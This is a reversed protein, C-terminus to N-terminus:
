QHVAAGIGGGPYWHNQPREGFYLFRRGTQEAWKPLRDTVHSNDSLVLSGPGLHDTVAEFESTEHEPSHDSDHLFVDVSTRLASLSALSDGTVVETVEEFPGDILYGAEPNVDMTTLRGTGNALLAAALVCSGLGKDTGTEVVHAPRLARVIAYWGVRRGYRVETDAFGRLESKETASRIHSRLQEDALVEAIWARCDTVSAGTIDAVFWALHELNLPVLDYTFNTHERSRALWTAATKMHSGEEKLVYRARMPLALLPAASSKRLRDRMLM